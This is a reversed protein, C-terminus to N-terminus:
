SCANGYQIGEPTMVRKEDRLNRQTEGNQTNTDKRLQKRDEGESKPQGRDSRM